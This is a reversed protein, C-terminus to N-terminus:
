KLYSNNTKHNRAAAGPGPPKSTHPPTHLGEALLLSGLFQAMVPVCVCVVWDNIYVLLSDVRQEM